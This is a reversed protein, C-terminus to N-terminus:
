VGQSIYAAHMTRAAKICGGLSTLVEAVHDCLYDRLENPFFGTCSFFDLLCPKTSLGEIICDDAVGHVTAYRFSWFVGALAVAGEVSSLPRAENFTSIMKESIEAHNERFYAQPNDVPTAPIPLVGAVARAVATLYARADQAVIAQITQEPIYQLHM